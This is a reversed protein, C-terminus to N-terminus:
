QTFAQAGGRVKSFGSRVRAIEAKNRFQLRMLGVKANTFSM